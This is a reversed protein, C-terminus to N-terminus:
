IRTSMFAALNQIVRQVDSLVAMDQPHKQIIHFIPKSFIRTEGPPLRGDRTVRV